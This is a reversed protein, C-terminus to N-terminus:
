VCRISSHSHSSTREKGETNLHFLAKPWPCGIRGSIQMGSWFSVTRHATKSPDQRLSDMVWLSLSYTFGELLMGCSLVWLLIWGLSLIFSLAVIKCSIPLFLGHCRRLTETYKEAKLEGADFTSRTQFDQHQLRNKLLALILLICMQSYSHGDTQGTCRCAGQLTDQAKNVHALAFLM